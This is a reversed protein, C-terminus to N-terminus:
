LGGFAGCYLVAARQVSSTLTTIQCAWPNIFSEPFGFTPLHRNKHPKPKAPGFKAKIDSLTSSEEGKPSSRRSTAEPSTGSTCPTKIRAEFRVQQVLSAGTRVTGLTQQQQRADHGTCALLQLLSVCFLECMLGSQCNIAINLLFEEAQVYVLGSTLTSAMCLLTFLFFFANMAKNSVSLVRSQVEECVCRVIWLRLTHPLSRTCAAPTHARVAYLLRILAHPSDPPWTHLLWLHHSSFANRPGQTHKRM